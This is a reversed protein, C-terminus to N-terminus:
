IRYSAECGRLGRLKVSSRNAEFSDPIPELGIPPKIKGWAPTTYSAVGSVELRTDLTRLGEGTGNKARRRLKAKLGSGFGRYPQSVLEIRTAPKSKKPRADGLQDLASSQLDLM